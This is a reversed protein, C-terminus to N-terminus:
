ADACDQELHQFIPLFLRSLRVFEQDLPDTQAFFYGYSAEDGEGPKEYVGQWVRLAKQMATEPDAAAYAQSTQPYFHLPASLGQWYLDLLDLLYDEPAVVPRLTHLLVPEGGQASNRAAHISSLPLGRPAAANLLLHYVWLDMLTAGKMLGSRWTIRGSAFLETLWGTLRYPGIALDIEVPPLPSTCLVALQDAFIQGAAALSDFQAQGFGQQPLRGSGSLYAYLADASRHEHLMAGIIEQRLQYQQLTDLAFPESEEIPEDERHLRM